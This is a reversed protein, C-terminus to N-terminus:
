AAIALEESEAEAQAPAPAEAAAAAPRPDPSIWRAAFVLAGLGLYLGLVVIPSWLLAAALPVRLLNPHIGLDEGLGQCVGFFTDDRTFLNPQATQM